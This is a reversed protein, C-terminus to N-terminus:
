KLVKKQWSSRHCKPCKMYRTRGMHMAWYTQKLTPVYKYFCHKCQYFGVKTEIVMCFHVGVFLNLVGFIILLIRAWTPMSVFSAVIVLTFLIISAMFGLVIELTLLMKSKKYLEDACLVLNQEAHEKYEKDELKKASLLENASIGLAECLPLMLSTDPFGYGCEWKSITKESVMLKEALEAQTMKKARRQEKIFQGTLKLDM